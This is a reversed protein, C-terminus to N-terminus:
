LPECLPIIQTREDDIYKRIVSEEVTTVILQNVVGKACSDVLFKVLSRRNKSDLHELPEDLLMFGVNEAFYRSLIAHTIVLLATKEGGSLMSLDYQYDGKAVLPLGEDNLRVSWGEDAKFENYVYSIERYIESKLKEERQETITRQISEKMIQSIIGGKTASILSGEIDKVGKLGEITKLRGIRERIDGIEYESEPLLPELNSKDKELIEIKSRLNNIEKEFKEVGEPSLEYQKMLTKVRTERSKFIDLETDLKRETIRLDGIEKDLDPITQKLENIKGLTEEKIDKIEHKSLPKKCVPCKVGVEYLEGKDAEYVLDLVKKLSNLEGEIRNKMSFEEEFKSKIESRRQQLGKIHKQIQGLKEVESMVSSLEGRLRMKEQVREEYNWLESEIESLRARRESKIKELKDLEKHLTQLNGLETLSLVKLEDRAERYREEEEQFEKELEDIKMFLDKMQTIGLVSDIHNMLAEGPPNQIFRYVDGEPMYIIREFFLTKVKFRNEFYKTIDDWNGTLIERESNWIKSQLRSGPSLRREVWLPENDVKYKVRIKASKAGSRVLKRPDSGNPLKGTFAVCIAELISSKGIGNSGTIFNVGDTFDKELEDFSKWNQLEVREILKGGRFQLHPSYV